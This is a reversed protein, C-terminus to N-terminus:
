KRTHTSLSINPEFNAWPALHTALHMAGLREMDLVDKIRFDYLEDMAETYVPDDPAMHNDHAMLIFLKGILLVCGDQM